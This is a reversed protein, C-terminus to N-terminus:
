PHAIVLVTPARRMVCALAQQLNHPDLAAFSEDLVILNAGQLLTRAIYLRSKEGHSLQWGTDGVMQMLGGPMRALLEGLGLEHCLEEAEQLDAWTPPWRRGMLLNFAFTETLVYNEHFQPAAAIQRQWGAQGWTRRDYGNLLMLGGDPSRMGTILAALTSKGGGSIGELLVQQGPYIVLNCRHLVPDARQRYRYTLDIAHLLPANTIPAMPKAILTPDTVLTPREAAAFIPVIQAWAIKASVLQLAGNIFRRLALYASLIGGVAIAVDASSASNWLFAPALGLAGVVLWGKASYALLRQAAGDAAISCNMYDSLAWDEDVHRQFSHEQALRTRYGAMQEVLTHTLNMRSATWQQRQQYFRWLWYAALALWGILLLLQLLGGAGVALVGFTLALEITAFLTLFGGTLVLTELTEAEFVSGLLQGIGQHRTEDPELQLAGFLLREKLLAGGRITLVSQLHLIGIRLPVLMLLLLAWGWLWGTEIRGQLAGWGVLYWGALWMGYYVLHLAALIFLPRQLGQQCFQSWFTARPTMRLLWGAHYPTSRLRERLLATYARPRSRTPVKAKTLLQEIETRARAELPGTLWACIETNAITKLTLDPCLVTVQRQNGVVLVLYSTTGDGNLRLVAPAVKPLAAEAEHYAIEIAEADVGIQEVVAFVWQDLLDAAQESLPDPAASIVQPSMALGTQRALAAFAESLRAHPWAM